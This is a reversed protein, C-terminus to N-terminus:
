KLDSINILDKFGIFNKFGNPSSTDGQSTVLNNKITSTDAYGCLSFTLTEKKIVFLTPFNSEEETIAPLFGFDFVHVNYTTSNIKVKPQFNRLNIKSLATIPIDLFKQCAILGGYNRVTKDLFVQGEFRDRLQNINELGLFEFVSNRMLIEDTKNLSIQPYDRLFEGTYKIFLKM